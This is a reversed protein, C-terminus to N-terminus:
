EEDAGEAAAEDDGGEGGEADAGEEGEIVEVDEDTEEVPEIDPVTISVATREPDDLLEVGEPLTIEGARVVDGVELGDISVEIMSPVELPLVEISLVNMPQSLIAGEPVEGVISLRVDVTVKVDASIAVLDLHLIDRRVPHRHIERALALHSSDTMTVNLIANAGADTNLANRLDRADVHIPMTDVGSGYTIAPVRGEARLARAEGKGNGPRPEAALAIQDSM